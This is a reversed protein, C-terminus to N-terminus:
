GFDVPLTSARRMVGISEWEVDGLRAHEPLFELAAQVMFTLEQLALNAGLCYHPGTGFALSERTDRTIDFRDPDAFVREDRNASRTSVLVMDGSRIRTGAVEIDELAVMPMSFAGGLDLRLVERVASEVLSPDARLKALQEPHELLLRIANTGGLTTTESGAAVLVVVLMIIQANNMVFDGQNGHILDSLLDEQPEQRREDALKEIWEALESMALEGRRKNDDDAMPFFQRIVDQALRRFRDEDGPYPPIGTVRSIVTNPIPNTFADLLDVVGRRGMLPRAFQDVVARVQGEMRRVARPTVGASIQKRWRHHAAEDALWMSHEDHRAAWTGPAPPTYFKTLRRDRSLRPDAMLAKVDQHRTIVWGEIMPDWFVPAHERLEALAPTPDRVIEPSMLTTFTPTM